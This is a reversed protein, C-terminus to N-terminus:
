ATQSNQGYQSMYQNYQFATYGYPNPNFTVNQEFARANMIPQAGAALQPDVMFNQSNPMSTPMFYDEPEQPEDMLGIATAGKVYATDMLNKGLMDTVPGIPDDMFTTYKEGLKTPINQIGAVTDRGAQTVLEGFTPRPTTGAVVAGRATPIQVGLLSQSASDQIGLESIVASTDFATAALTSTNTTGVLGSTTNLHEISPMTNGAIGEIRGGMINDVRGSLSADVSTPGVESLMENTTIELKKFDTTLSGFKETGRSWASDGPGFFNAAADFSTGFMKNSATKAFNGLTETVGKTINSFVTGVKSVANGVFTMANGAANVISSGVGAYASMAQGAGMWMTGIQAAAWPVIFMMAIQGLVGLKGMFKGFKKFAKKIPKVISFAVKKVGKWVKSLFGM